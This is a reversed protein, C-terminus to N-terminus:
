RPARGSAWATMLETMPTMLKATEQAYETAMRNLFAIEMQAFDAPTKCQALQEPMDRYLELRRGLFHFLEIQQEIFRRYLAESSKQWDTVVQEHSAQASDAGQFTSALNANQLFKEYNEKWIEMSDMYMKLAPAFDFDSRQPSTAQDNM